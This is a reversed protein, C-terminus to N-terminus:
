DYQRCSGRGSPANGDELILRNPTTEPKGAIAMSVIPTKGMLRRALMYHM